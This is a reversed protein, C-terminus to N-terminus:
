NVAKESLLHSDGSDFDEDTDAAGSSGGILLSTGASLAKEIKPLLAQGVTQDDAMVIHPMFAQEFSEIGEEVAVLKAKITLFFARWKQMIVQQHKRKAKAGSNYDEKPLDVTMRIQKGRMVFLVTGTLPSPIVVIGDGEYKTIVEEIGAVSEGVSVNTNEAYSM